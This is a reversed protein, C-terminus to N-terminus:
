DRNKSKRWEEQAEWRAQSDQYQEESENEWRATQHGWEEEAEQAAARKAELERDAATAPAPTAEQPANADGAPAAEAPEPMTEQPADAGGTPPAETLDPTTEQPTGTSEASEFAIPQDSGSAPADGSATAAAAAPKQTMEQRGAPSAAARLRDPGSPTGGGDDGGGPAKPSRPKAGRGASGARAVMAGAAAAMATGKAGMGQDGMFASAAGGFLTPVNDPIVHILSFCRMVLMSMVAGFLALGCVLSALNAVSGSGQSLSFVGWFSHAVYPSLTDCALVAAGWGFVMLVPRLACTLLLWLGKGSHGTYEGGYPSILFAAILPAGIMLVSASMLWGFVSGLWILYPLMPLVTQLFVCLGFAITLIHTIIAGLPTQFAQAVYAGAVPAAALVAVIVAGKEIGAAGNAGLDKLIVFASRDKDMGSLGNMFGSAAANNLKAVQKEILSLDAETRSTVSRTFADPDLTRITNDMRAYAVQLLQNEEPVISRDDPSQYTPTNGVARTVADYLTSFENYFAGLALWGEAKARAKLEPIYTDGMSAVAAQAVTRQYNTIASRFTARAAELDIEANVDAFAAALPALERELNAAATRHGEAIKDTNASLRNRFASSEASATNISRALDELGNDGKVGGCIGPDTGWGGYFRGSKFDGTASGPAVNLSQGEPLAALRSATASCTLSKLMSGALANVNALPFNPALGQPAYAGDIMAESTTNALGIGQTISWATAWAITPYGNVVPMVLASGLALKIIFAGSNWQRGLIVGDHATKKIGAVLFCGALAGVLMMVGGSYAEIAGGMFTSPGGFPEGFIGALLQKSKDSDPVTFGTAQAAAAASLLALFAGMIARIIKAMKKEKRQNPGAITATARAPSGSSKSAFGAGLSRWSSEIGCLGPSGNSCRSSRLALPPFRSFGSRRVGSSGNCRRRRGFWALGSCCPASCSASRPRSRSPSFILSRNPCSRGEQRSTPRRRHPQLIALLHEELPRCRPGRAGHM